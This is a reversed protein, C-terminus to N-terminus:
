GEDERGSISRVFGATVHSQSGDSIDKLDLADNQYIAMRSWPSKSDAKVEEDKTKRVEQIMGDSFDACTLACSEPLKYENILRSMVPAPGCGNDLVGTAKTFPLLSNAQELLAKQAPEGTESFKSKYIKALDAWQDSRV